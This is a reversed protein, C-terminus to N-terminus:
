SVPPPVPIGPFNPYIIAWRGERYEFYLKFMGAMKIPESQLLSNAMFGAMGEVYGMGQLGPMESPEVEEAMTSTDNEGIAPDHLDYSTQIFKFDHKEFGSITGFWNVLYDILLQGDYYGNTTPDVQERWMSRIMADADRNFFGEIFQVAAEEIEVGHNPYYEEYIVGNIMGPVAGFYNPKQPLQVALFEYRTSAPYEYGFSIDVNHGRYWDMLKEVAEEAEEANEPMAGFDPIQHTERFTRAAGSSQNQEFAYVQKLFMERLEPPLDPSLFMDEMGHEARLKLELMEAELNPLGPEHNEDLPPQNM